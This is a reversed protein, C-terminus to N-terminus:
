LFDFCVLLADDTRKKCNLFFSFQMPNNLQSRFGGSRRSM